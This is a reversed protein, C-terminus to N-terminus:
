FRWSRMSLRSKKSYFSLILVLIYALRPTKHHLVKETLNPLPANELAHGFHQLLQLILVGPM